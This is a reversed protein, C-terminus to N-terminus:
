VAREIFAAQNVPNIFGGPLAALDTPAVALYVLDQDGVELDKTGTLAGAVTPSANASLRFNFTAGSRLLLGFTNANSSTGWCRANADVTVGFGVVIAASSSWEHFLFAGNVNFLGQLFNLRATSACNIDFNFQGGKFTLVTSSFWCGAFFVDANSHFESVVDIKCGAFVTYTDCWWGNGGLECGIYNQPGVPGFFTQGTPGLAFDRWEIPDNTYWVGGASASIGPGQTLTEITVEQGIQFASSTLTIPDLSNYAVVATEVTGGLGIIWSIRGVNPGATIRIRRGLYPTWDYGAVTITPLQGTTASEGTAGTLVQADLATAAEGLFFTQAFATGGQITRARYIDGPLAPSSLVHVRVEQLFVVNEWLDSLRSFTLLATAATQGDNDDSATGTANQPDIYWDTVNGVPGTGLLYNLADKVTAGPVSSDNGILSALLQVFRGVISKRVKPIM